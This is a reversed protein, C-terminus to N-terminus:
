GAGPGRHATDAAALAGCLSAYCLVLCFLLDSVAAGVARTGVVRPVRDARHSLGKDVAAAFVLDGPHLLPLARSGGGGRGAGKYPALLSEGSGLWCRGGRQCWLVERWKRLGISM